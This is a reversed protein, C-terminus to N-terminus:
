LQLSQVDVINKQIAYIILGATNKVGVKSLLKNKHGEVTRKTIYLKDAIEQATCQQCILQLVEKERATLSAEISLKPKPAKPTIQTRMMDVQEPLFYYGERYVTEVVKLLEVPLIGKPLFASVGAKLMYGMFYKKYYSSIAIIRISPYTEKLISSLAIGDLEKMRLDILAVDPLQEATALKELFDEGSFASLLVNTHPQQTFFGELLKVILQEDDVLALQIIPQNDTM